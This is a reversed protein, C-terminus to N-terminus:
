SSSADFINEKISVELISMEGLLGIGSTETLDLDKALSERTPISKEFIRIQQILQSKRIREEEAEKQAREMMALTETHMENAMRTKTEVIKAKAKIVGEKIEHVEVIKKKNEEDQEKKQIENISRIEDRVALMEAAKEKKEKLLEQRAAFAEEHIM